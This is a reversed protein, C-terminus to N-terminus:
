NRGARVHNAGRLTTLVQPLVNTEASAGGHLPVHRHM